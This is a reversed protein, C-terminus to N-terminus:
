VLAHTNLQKHTKNQLLKIILEKDNLSKEMLQIQKRLSNNEDKVKRMEIEHQIKLKIIEEQNKKNTTDKVKENEIRSLSVDNLSLEICKFLDTMIKKRSLNCFSKFLQKTQNLSLKPKNMIEKFCKTLGEKNMETFNKKNELFDSLFNYTRVDTQQLNSMYLYMNKIFDYVPSSENVGVSKQITKKCYVIWRENYSNQIQEILMKNVFAKDIDTRTDSYDIVNKLLTTPENKM